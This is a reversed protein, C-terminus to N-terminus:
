GAWGDGEQGHVSPRGALREALKVSEALDFSPQYGDPQPTVMAEYVPRFGRLTALVPNPSAQGLGCRSTREITTALEELEDLDSPQGKGEIIRDLKEKLLVTGVRCPTCIGCSEHIFFEMFVSVIEPISRTPGFVLVAGGTALDDYDITREFESPGVMERSPGGVQVAAADEAGCMDLVERLTVGMDLEYVGPRTCDGAISLLKTGSSQHTGHECFTAPGVELIKTICALTEVNNVVTPCGLYGRQAPFPPRTRPEGRVGECSNLLATEEGCIYAGAGLQIRIDFDFGKRGCISKGLLNDERRKQLVHELFLRLYAYEARLYVIGETAGIAYAAVTLGAFVRDPMETLLVRDKFTGPEGEDANCFVYKRAGSAARAFEWKMGTPFGAGGRGRLRATKVARIVEAPSIALAKRIAEGRHEASFVIPGARRVNNEVMARVLPHANNGDGFRRVLRAPNAHERLERVIGRARDSSLSTVVVDNILAAPAQDCMGICPTRDLTIAGDPTTQGIRIGLADEFALRVQDFGAMRDIVDDCLRIVVRGRPLGEYFSYFSVVGEVEVRPIGLWGAIADIADADVAGLREQVGRILDMLRWRERGHREGVDVVVKSTEERTM